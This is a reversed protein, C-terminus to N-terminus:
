LYYPDRSYITTTTTSTSNSGAAAAGTATNYIGNESRKVDTRGGICVAGRAGWDGRTLPLKLKFSLAGAVAGGEDKCAARCRFTGVGSAWVVGAGCGCLVDGM